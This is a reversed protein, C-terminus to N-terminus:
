ARKELLDQMASQNTIKTRAEILEKPTDMELVRRETENIM